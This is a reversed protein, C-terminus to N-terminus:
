KGIPDLLWRRVQAATDRDRKDGAMLELYTQVPSAALNERRDFYAAADETQFFEVEAFREAPTFAGGLDEGLSAVNTCYYRRIPERAMTAYKGVSDTGTAALREGTTEEWRSTWQALQESSMRLKGTLRDNIAPAAFNELLRDLLKEPQMLRIPKTRAQADDRREVILEQELGALVKSITALTAAGGRNAVASRVDRLANFQRDLLITRAVLASTGRYINKITGERVFQNPQGSRRIFLEGPAIVLGNGCLDLASMEQQELRDLQEDSLYPVFIAPLARRRLSAAGQRAEAVASDVTKPTSSSKCQIALTFQKGQWSLQATADLYRDAPLREVDTIRTPPLAVQGRALAALMQAETPPPRNRAM